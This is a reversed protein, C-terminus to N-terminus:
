KQRPSRNHLLFAIIDAKTSDADLPRGLAAAIKYANSLTLEWNDGYSNSPWVSIRRASLSALMPYRELDNAVSEACAEDVFLLEPNWALLQEIDIRVPNGGPADLGKAVNAIGLLKFPTYNPQTVTIGHCGQFSLGGIYATRKPLQRGMTALEAFHRELYAQVEAARRPQQLLEGLWRLSTYFQARQDTFNGSSFTKVPIGTKKQMIAQEDPSGNAWLILDPKLALIAEADGQTGPGISPLGRLRPNAELYPRVSTPQKKKEQQEVGVVQATAGLYSVM